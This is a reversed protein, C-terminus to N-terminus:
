IIYDKTETKGTIRACLDKRPNVSIRDCIFINDLVKKIKKLWLAEKAQYGESWLPRYVEISYIPRKAILGITELDTHKNQM